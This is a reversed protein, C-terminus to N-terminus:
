SSSDGRGGRRATVDLAVDGPGQSANMLERAPGNGLIVDLMRITETVIRRGEAMSDLLDQLVMATERKARNLISTMRPLGQVTSKFSEMGSYANILSNLFQM